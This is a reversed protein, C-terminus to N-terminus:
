APRSALLLALLAMADAQNIEGTHWRIKDQHPWGQKLLRSLDDRLCQGMITFDIQFQGRTETHYVRHAYGLKVLRDAMRQCRAIFEPDPQFPQEM